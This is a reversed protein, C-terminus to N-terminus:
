NEAVHFAVPSVRRAKRDIRFARVNPPEVALSVIVYVLGPHYALDVDTDSPYAPTRPHSHFIALPTRGAKRIAAVTAKQEDADIVYRRTPDDAVNTLPYVWQARGDAGAVIGCAERPYERRCHEVILEIVGPAVVLTGMPYTM